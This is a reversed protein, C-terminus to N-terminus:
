VCGQLVQELLLQPLVQQGGDKLPIQCLFLTLTLGQGGGQWVYPRSGPEWSGRSGTLPTWLFGLSDDRCLHDPRAAGGGTPSQWACVQESWM